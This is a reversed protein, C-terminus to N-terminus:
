LLGETSHYIKATLDMILLQEGTNDRTAESGESGEATGDSDFPKIEFDHLTVIREMQAVDSIFRAIQSYTGIVSIQIPVEAYFDHREEQLPDFLIFRLGSAVGTKSIEELLNPIEIQRPLERIMHAFLAGLTEVQEKYEELNVLREHVVEFESRLETEQAVTKRLAQMQSKADFWLGLGVIAVMAIAYVACKIETPWSGINELTLENLNM